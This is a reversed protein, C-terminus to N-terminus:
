LRRYGPHVGPALGSADALRGLLRRLERREDDTLAATIEEDHERAAASLDSLVTEGSPTLRLEHVRRDKESRRRSVLERGELEDVLAVVRSPAAGLRRALARQSIGPERAVLRLVGALPPSLELAAIRHAFRAAAHAGLQALLFASSVPHPTAPQQDMGNDYEILIM